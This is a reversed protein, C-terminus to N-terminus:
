HKQPAAIIMVLALLYPLALLLSSPVQAFLPVNQITTSAYEAAAFVLVAPVVLLPHKRGLFVAALATWGRGSSVGPVFSSLRLTFVCGSLAGAAAAILWSLTRYRDANIGAATLVDSDSGTVRLILGATTGRVFGILLACLVYCVLSTVLRMTAASYRFTESSLVGRTGFALASLLTVLSAFLLNMALSALFMNAGFHAATRELTCVVLSCLAVSLLTGLVANGTALTLAYCLFAGLNIVHELFMALRGAYESILAGLTLLLLPAAIMLISLIM